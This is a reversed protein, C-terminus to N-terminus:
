QWRTGLLQWTRVPSGSETAGGFRIVAGSRPDVALGQGITAPPGDSAITIWDHGTWRWTSVRPTGAILLLDDGRAALSPGESDVPGSEHLREWASGSWQWLDRKMGDTNFGGYLVVRGLRPSWTMSHGVRAAPGSTAVRAWARGDWTWTAGSMQRSRAGGFLVVAGRAQDYAMGAHELAGPSAPTEIRQWRRGDWEWTDDFVATRDRGGFLVLRDRKEDYALLADERLRGFDSHTRWAGDRWLWVRSDNLLTTGCARAGGYMVIGEPVSAMAHCARAAPAQMVTAVLSSVMAVIALPLTVNLIM